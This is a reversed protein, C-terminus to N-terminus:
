EGIELNHKVLSGTVMLAAPSAAELTTLIGAQAQVPAFQVMAATYVLEWEQTLSGM